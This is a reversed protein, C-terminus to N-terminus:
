PRPQWGPWGLSWVVPRAVTVLSVYFGFWVHLGHEEIRQGADCNRGSAGKGGLRHRLQYVTIEYRQQWDPQETIEFVAALSGLGGGLVALRQRPAPQARSSAVRGSVFLSRGREMAFDFDLAFAARIPTIRALGLDRAIPHSATDFLELELEGAIRGASRVATTKAPALLLEQFAARTPDAIDRLQRVFLVPVEGRLLSSMNGLGAGLAELTAGDFVLELVERLSVPTARDTSALGRRRLELIPQEVLQSDPAYSALAPAFVRYPEASDLRTPIDIRAHVKPFGYVERGTIVASPQDVFIYPIAWALSRQPAGDQMYEVLVPIWFVM